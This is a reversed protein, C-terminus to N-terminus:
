SVVVHLIILKPRSPYPNAPAAKNLVPVVGSFIDAPALHVTCPMPMKADM